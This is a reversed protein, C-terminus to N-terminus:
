YVGWFRSHSISISESNCRILLRDPTRAAQTATLDFSPDGTPYSPGISLETWIDFFSDIQQAVATQGSALAIVCAAFLPTTM